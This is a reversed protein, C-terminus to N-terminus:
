FCLTLCIRPRVPTPPASSTSWSSITSIMLWVLHQCIMAARRFSRATPISCRWCGNRNLRGSPTPTRFTGYGFLLWKWERAQPEPHSRIRGRLESTGTSKAQNNGVPTERYRVHREASSQFRAAPHTQPRINTGGMSGDTKSRHLRRTPKGSREVPLDIASRSSLTVLLMTLCSASRRFTVRTWSSNRRDSRCKRAESCWEKMADADVAASTAVADLMTTTLAVNLSKVLDRQEDGAFDGNSFTSLLALSAIATPRHRFLKTKFWSNQIDQKVFLMTTASYDSGNRTLEAGWWLRAVSHKNFERGAFREAGVRDDGMWRWRVYHQLPGIALWDWIGQDAAERRTLRLAAHVRPALWRDSEERKASDFKDIAKDVISVLHKVDIERRLGKTYKAVDITTRGALFDESLLLRFQPNLRHLLDM